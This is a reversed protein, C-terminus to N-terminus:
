MLLYGLMNCIKLCLLFKSRNRVKVIVAIVVVVTEWAAM